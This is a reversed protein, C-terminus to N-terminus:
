VTINKILEIKPNGPSDAYDISIFDLRYPGDGWRIKQLYFKATKLLHRIKWVTMSESPLGYKHSWRTKVEIFVLYGGEKAVIDMEGGRIRYNRELIEYGQSKLYECALDEGKNGTIISGMLNFPLM